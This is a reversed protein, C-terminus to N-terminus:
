PSGAKLHTLYARDEDDRRPRGQKEKKRKEWKKLYENGIKTYLTFDELGSWIKSPLFIDQLCIWIYRCICFWETIPFFQLLTEGLLYLVRWHITFILLLGGGLKRGLMWRYKNQYSYRSNNLLYWGLEWAMDNVHLPGRPGVASLMNCGRVVVVPESNHPFLLDRQVEVQKWWPVDILGSDPLPFSGRSGAM